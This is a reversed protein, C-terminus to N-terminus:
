DLVSCYWTSRKLKYRTQECTKVDWCDGVQFGKSLSDVLQAECKEIVNTDGSSSGGPIIASISDEYDAAELRWVFVAAM